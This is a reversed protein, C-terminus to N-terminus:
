ARRAFWWWVLASAAGSIALTVAIMTDTGEMSSANAIFRPWSYLYAAVDIVATVIGATFCRMVVNDRHRAGMLWTMVAGFLVTQVFGGLNPGYVDEPTLVSPIATHWIYNMLSAVPIWWILPSSSQRQGSTEIRAPTSAAQSRRPGDLWWALITALITFVGGVIAGIVEPLM